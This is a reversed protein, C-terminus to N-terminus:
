NVDNEADWSADSQFDQSFRDNDWYMSFPPTDGGYVSICTRGVSDDLISAVDFLRNVMEDITVDPGVYEALKKAEVSAYEMDHIAQEAAEKVVKM